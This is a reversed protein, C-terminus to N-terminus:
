LRFVAFLGVGLQVETITSFLLDSKCRIREKITPSDNRPQPGIDSESLNRFDLPLSLKLPNLEGAHMM